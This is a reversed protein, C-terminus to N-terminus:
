KIKVTQCINNECYFFATWKSFMDKQFALIYSKMDNNLLYPIFEERLLEIFEKRDVEREVETM